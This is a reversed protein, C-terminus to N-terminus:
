ALSDILSQARHQQEESGEQLVEELIGRAGEPDGMDIYAHALDLKTEAEDIEDFDGLDFDLDAEETDDLETLDLSESILDGENNFAEDSEFTQDARPEFEQMADDVPSHEDESIISDSLDLIETDGAEVTDSLHHTKLDDDEPTKSTDFPDSEHADNEVSDTQNTSQEFDLFESTDHSYSEETKAKETTEQAYDDLNFEIPSDDESAARLSTSETESFAESVDALSEDPIVEEPQTDPTEDAFFLANNPMLEHGWAAIDTWQSDDSNIDSESLVSLFDASKQQKFLVYLLKTAIQKDAPQQLYAQDLAHRAQVYDAYGVFMDAQEVLAQTSKEPIAQVSEEEPQTTEVTTDSDVVVATTVTANDQFATKKKAQQWQQPKNRQRVVYGILLLILLAALLLEITYRSFIAKIQNLMSPPAEEATVLGSDNETSAAYETSANEYAETIEADSMMMTDDLPSAEESMALSDEITSTDTQEEDFMVSDSAEIDDPTISLLEDDIAQQATTEAEFAGEGAIIALAEADTLDNEQQELIQQLRAMDADKLSLLRRMTEMQAEMADMRSKFDINEQTQSEITEQALTLQESLKRIEPDGVMMPDASEDGSEDATLLKLRAADEAVQDALEAASDAEAELEDVDAPVTADTQEATTPPEVEDSETTSEPAPSPQQRQEWAAIQQNIQALADRQSVQTARASDPVTLVADALLSNMNNNQFAQPNEEFLALMMQQVSVSDSARVRQAIKWL